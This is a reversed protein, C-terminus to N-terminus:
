LAVATVHFYDNDGAGFKVSVANTDTTAIAVAGSLQVTYSGPTLVLSAGNALFFQGPLGLNASSTYPIALRAFGKNTIVGSGVPANSFTISSSVRKPRGDHTFPTQFSYAVAYSFTVLSTQVVEFTYTGIASIVNNNTPSATIWDSETINDNFLSGVLVANQNAVTKLVGESDAVVKRDSVRNGSISNIDRVRLNGNAVDLRETPQIEGIGVRGNGTATLVDTTGSMIHLPRSLIDSSNTKIFLGSGTGSTDSNNLIMSYAAGSTQWNIGTNPNIGRGSNDTAAATASNSLQSFPSNAGIGVRGQNTVIFDDTQQAATPAGTIPNNTAGDIHFFNQPNQTGIGVQSFGLYTNFLITSIILIKKM